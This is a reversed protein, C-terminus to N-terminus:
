PVAPGSAASGLQDLVMRNLDAPLPLQHSQVLKLLDERESAGSREYAQRIEVAVRRKEADSLNSLQRHAEGMARATHTFQEIMFSRSAIHKPDTVIRELDAYIEQRQGSSLYTFNEHILAKLERLQLQPNAPLSPRPAPPATVQQIAADMLRDQLISWLLRAVPDVASAATIWGALALFALIQRTKLLM